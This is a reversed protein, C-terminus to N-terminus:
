VDDRPFGSWMEERVEALDDQTIGADRWLGRLSRRPKGPMPQVESAIRPALREILRVKDVLPLREALELVEDLSASQVMM